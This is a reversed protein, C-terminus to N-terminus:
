RLEDLTAASRAAERAAMAAADPSIPPPAAPRPPPESPDPFGTLAPRRSTPRPTASETLDAAASGVGASRPGGGAPSPSPSAVPAPAVSPAASLTEAEAMRNVPQEGVLDRVGAEAYFALAARAADLRDPTM